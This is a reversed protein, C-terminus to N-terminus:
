ILNHRSGCITQNSVKFTLNYIFSLHQCAKDRYRESAIFCQAFVTLNGRDGNNM